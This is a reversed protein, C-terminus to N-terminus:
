VCPLPRGIHYGQAYKAPLDRVGGLGVPVVSQLSEFVLAADVEGSCAESFVM